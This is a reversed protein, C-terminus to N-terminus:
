RAAMRKAELDTRLKRMAPEAEALLKNLAQRRVEEALSGRAADATASASLSTDDTSTQIHVYPYGNRVDILLAQAVGQAEVDRNPLLYAGIITLDGIALLNGESKATGFTEYVIVADVHQRAAALRIKRVITAVTGTEHATTAPAVMEAILPSIPVFEGFPPGLSGAIRAWAAAEDPPVVSLDSRWNGDNAIRALGIKAPFRLQPEVAAAERVAADVQPGAAGATDYGSLYDRGSSTQVTSACAGLFMAAGLVRVVANLRAM